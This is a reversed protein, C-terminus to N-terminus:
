SLEKQFTDSPKYKESVSQEILTIKGNHIKFNISIDAFSARSVQDNLWDFLSILDYKM